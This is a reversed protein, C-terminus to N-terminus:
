RCRAAHSAARLDDLEPDTSAIVNAAPGGIMNAAGRAGRKSSGDSQTIFIQSPPHSRTIDLTPRNWWEGILDEQLRCCYSFATAAVHTRGAEQHYHLSPPQHALGEGRFGGLARVAGGTPPEGARALGGRVDPDDVDAAGLAALRRGAAGPSCALLFDM